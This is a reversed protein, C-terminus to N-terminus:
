AHIRGDGLRLGDRFVSGGDLPLYRLILSIGRRRAARAGLDIMPQQAIKSRNRHQHDSAKRMQGASRGQDDYAQRAPPRALKPNAACDTL